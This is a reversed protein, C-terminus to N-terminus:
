AVHRPDVSDGSAHGRFDQEVVSGDQDGATGTGEAPLAYPRQELAVPRTPQNNVGAVLELLVFHLLLERLVTHSEEESVHTIGITQDLRHAAYVEHDMGGREFLDRRRFVVGHLADLGVDM